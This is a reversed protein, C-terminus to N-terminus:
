VHRIGGRAFLGSPKLLMVAIMVMFMAGETFLPFGISGFSRVLGLLLAAGLAGPISGLGGVIVVVFADILIAFGSGPAVARMPGSLAGAAGALGCGLALVGAYYVNTNHGLTSVMGPLEAVAQVIRGFRSRSILFWLLFGIGGAILMLILYYLPIVGGHFILPPVRMATPMGMSVAAPGWILKTLDDVVLIVGYCALLQMHVDADRIPRLVWREFVAGLIAAMTVAAIIAVLLSQMAVYASYATYGGILYFAGHAFNNIGLVGFVLTLGAATLFMLMGIVIGSTVQTVVCSATSFCGLLADLEM